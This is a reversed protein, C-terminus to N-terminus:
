RSRLAYLKPKTTPRVMRVYSFTIRSQNVLFREVFMKFIYILVRHSCDIKWLPQNGMKATLKRRIVVMLGMILNGTKGVKSSENEDDSESIRDVGSESEDDSESIRDVGSESEDDSESEKDVDSERNDVGSKRDDDICVYM